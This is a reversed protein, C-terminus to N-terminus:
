YGRQYYFIYSLNLVLGSIFVDLALINFMVSLPQHIALAGMALFFGFSFMFSFNRVAKLEIMKDREDAISPEAEHTAIRNVINFIIVIILKAIIEIVIWKLFFVGWLHSLSEIGAPAQGQINIYLYLFVLISTLISVIAKKTHYTM